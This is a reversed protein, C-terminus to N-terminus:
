RMCSESPQPSEVAAAQWPELRKQGSQCNHQFGRRSVRSASSWTLVAGDQGGQVYTKKLTGAAGALRSVQMRQAFVYDQTEQVHGCPCWVVNAPCWHWGTSPAMQSCRDKPLDFLIAERLVTLPQATVPAHTHMPCNEMDAPLLGALGLLQIHQCVPPVRCSLHLWAHSGSASMDTVFTQCQM